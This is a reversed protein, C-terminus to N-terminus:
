YYKWTAKLKERRGVHLMGLISIQQYNHVEIDKKKKNNISGEM